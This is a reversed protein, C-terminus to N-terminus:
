LRQAVVTTPLHQSILELVEWERQTLQDTAGRRPRAFRRRRRHQLERTRFEELLRRELARPLAAEGALVRALAAPLRGAPTDKLLYGSVGAVVAEFLDDDNPSATLIVTKTEPAGASIRRAANVGGGPMYLDLLCLVPRHRI